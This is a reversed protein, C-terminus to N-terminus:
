GVRAAPEDARNAVGVLRAFWHRWMAEHLLLQRGNPLGVQRLTLHTRHGHDILDFAVVSPAGLPEGEWDWSFSIHQPPALAVVSGIAVADGLTFRVAGGVRPEIEAGDLWRRLGEPTALLEFLEERRRGVEAQLEVRALPSM